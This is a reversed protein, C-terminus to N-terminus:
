MHEDEIPPLGRRALSANIHRDREADRKEEERVARVARRWAAKAWPYQTEFARPRLLSEAALHKRADVWSAAPIM